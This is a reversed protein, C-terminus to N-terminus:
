SNQFEDEEKNILKLKVNGKFLGMIFDAKIIYTEGERVDLELFDKNGAVAWFLQRGPKCEYKLYSLGRLNGIFQDHNYFDFSIFIGKFENRIIYVNAKVETPISLEQAFLTTLNFLCFITVVLINKM